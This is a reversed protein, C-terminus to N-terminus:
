KIGPWVTKVAETFKATFAAQSRLHNGARTLNWAVTWCLLVMDAFDKHRGKVVHGEGGEAEERLKTVRALAWKFNLTCPAGGTPDSVYSMLKKFLAADFETARVAMYLWMSAPGSGVRQAANM